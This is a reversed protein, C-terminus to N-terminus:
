AKVEMEEVAQCLKHQCFRYKTVRDKAMWESWWHEHDLESPM